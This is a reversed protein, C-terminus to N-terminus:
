NKRAIKLVDCFSGNHKHIKRWKGQGIKKALYFSKSGNKIIKFETGNKHKVILIGEKSHYCPFDRILKNIDTLFESTNNYRKTLDVHTATRIVKKFRSDFWKPISELSLIKGTTIKNDIFVRRKEKWKVCDDKVKRLLAKEIKNLFDVPSEVRFVGGLLQYFIIGVQYIDSQFNYKNKSIAEPPLYLRTCKSASVYGTAECLKKVSGLDAIVPIYRCKHFLINSPKLDRHVLSHDSHLTNVGDLIGRILSLVVSSSITLDSDILEQLDGGTIRPSLFYSNCPPLFRLDDVKLINPHEINRLIVAEESSNFDKKALYFKVVVDEQLKIRIGFYVIGNCGRDIHKNFEIHKHNRVFERIEQPSDDDSLSGNIM